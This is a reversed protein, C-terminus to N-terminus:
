QESSSRGNRIDCGGQMKELIEHSGGNLTITWSKKLGGKNINVISGFLAARNGSGKEAISSAEVTPANPPPPPPPPPAPQPPSQRNQDTLKSNPNGSDGNSVKSDAGSLLGM